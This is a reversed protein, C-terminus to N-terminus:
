DVDKNSAASSNDLPMTTAALVLILALASKTLPSSVAKQAFVKCCIVSLKAGTEAGDATGTMGGDSAGIVGGDSAGTVGVSAGTAAVSAGVGSTVIVSDGM